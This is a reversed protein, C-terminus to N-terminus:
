PREDMPLTSLAPALGNLAEDPMGTKSGVTVSAQPLVSEFAVYLFNASLRSDQDARPTTREHRCVAFGAREALDDPPPIRVGPLNEAVLVHDSEKRSIGRCQTMCQDNRCLMNRVDPREVLLRGLVKRTSRQLHCPGNPLGQLRIPQVDDLGVAFHGRLRDEVQVNM